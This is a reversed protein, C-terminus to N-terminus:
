RCSSAPSGAAGTWPIARCRSRSGCRGGRLAARGDEAPQGGARDARAVGPGLSARRRRGAGARPRRRARLHLQAGRRPRRAAARAKGPSSRPCSGNASTGATPSGPATSTRPACRWWACGVRATAPSRRTGCRRGPGSGQHGRDVAAHGRHDPRRVRGYGYLNGVTALVAGTHEAADLLASPGDAALARGLPPLRRPQRLQLHRGRGDAAEALAAADAADVAVHEVPADARDARAASCGCRTAAPARAACRDRERRSGQGPDRPLQHDPQALDHPHLPRDHEPVTM